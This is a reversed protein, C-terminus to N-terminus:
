HHLDTESLVNTSRAAAANHRVKEPDPEDVKYACDNKECTHVVHQTADAM